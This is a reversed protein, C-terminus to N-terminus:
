FKGGSHIEVEPVKIKKLKTIPAIQELQEIYKNRAILDSELASKADSLSKNQKMYDNIAGQLRDKESQLTNLNSVQSQKNSNDVTLANNNAICDALRKESEDLRKVLDGYASKVTGLEATSDEHIKIQSQLMINQKVVAMFNDLLVEVYANQLKVDM